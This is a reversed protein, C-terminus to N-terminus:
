EMRELQRVMQMISRSDNTSYDLNMYPEVAQEEDRYSMWTLDILKYTDGWRLINSPNLDHHDVNLRILEDGLSLLWHKLTPIEHPEVTLCHQTGVSEGALPLTIHTYEIEHPELLFPSELTHYWTQEGRRHFVENLAYYESKYKKTVQLGELIMESEYSPNM